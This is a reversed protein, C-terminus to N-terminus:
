IKVGSRWASRGHSSRIRKEVAVVLIILFPAILAFEVATAGGDRAAALGLEGM